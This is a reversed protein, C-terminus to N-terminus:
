SRRASFPYHPSYSFIASFIVRRRRKWLLGLFVAAGDEFARDARLSFGAHFYDGGHNAFICGYQYLSAGHPLHLSVLRSRHLLFLRQRASLRSLTLVSHRDKHHDVSFPRWGFDLQDQKAREPLADSDPCVQSYARLPPFSFDSDHYLLLYE